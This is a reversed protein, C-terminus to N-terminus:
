EAKESPTGSLLRQLLELYSGILASASIAPTAAPTPATNRQTALGGACGACALAVLLALAPSRPTPM